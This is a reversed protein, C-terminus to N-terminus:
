VETKVTRVDNLKSYLTKLLNRLTDSSSSRRDITRSEKGEENKDKEEDEDEANVDDDQTLMKM